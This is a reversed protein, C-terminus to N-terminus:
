CGGYLRTRLHRVYFHLREGLTAQTGNPMLDGLESAANATYNLRRWEDFDVVNGVGILPDSYTADETMARDLEEDSLASLAFALERIFNSSLEEDEFQRAKDIIQDALKRNLKYCGELRWRKSEDLSYGLDSIVAIGMGVLRDLDKQLAPYFPGGRRKLVKGDQAPMDWVPALVNALYAFTHLRLISMPILGAGEAADLLVILRLQRRIIAVQSPSPQKPGEAKM